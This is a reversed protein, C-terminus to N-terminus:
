SEKRPTVYYGRVPEEERSLFANRMVEVEGAIGCLQAPTATALAREHDEFLVVAGTDHAYLEGEDERDVHYRTVTTESM